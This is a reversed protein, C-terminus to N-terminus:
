QMAWYTLCAILGLTIGIAYPTVRRDGGLAECWACILPGSILIALITTM